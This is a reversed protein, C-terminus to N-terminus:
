NYINANKRIIHKGIKERVHRNDVTQQSQPSVKSCYRMIGCGTCKLLDQGATDDMSKAVVFCTSCAKDLLSDDLVSILPDLRLLLAGASVSQPSVLGRGTSFSSVDLKVRSGSLKAATSLTVPVSSM